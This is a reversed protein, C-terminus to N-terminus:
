VKAQDLYLDLLEGMDAVSGEAQRTALPDSVGRDVMQRLEQARARAAKAPWAALAAITVRHERRNLSYGLV